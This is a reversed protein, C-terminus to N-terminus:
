FLSDYTEDIVNELLSPNIEPFKELILNRIVETRQFYIETDSIETDCDNFKDLTINEKIFNNLENFFNDEEISQEKIKKSTKFANIAVLVFIVFMSYMVLYFMVASAGSVSFIQIIDLINLTLVAIGIISVFIFIYGTSVYDKYRDKQSVFARLPKPKPTETDEPPQSEEFSVDDERSVENTYAESDDTDDTLFVENELNEDMIEELSEVLPTGCDACTPRGNIYESKCKPCFSM